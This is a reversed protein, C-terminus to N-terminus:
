NINEIIELMKASYQYAEKYRRRMKLVRTLLSVGAKILIYDKEEIASDVFKMSAQMYADSKDDELGMEVLEIFSKVLPSLLDLEAKKFNLIEAYAEDDRFLKYLSYIRNLYYIETRLRCLGVNNLAAEYEGIINHYIAKNLHIYYYLEFDGKQQAYTISQAFSTLFDDFRYLYIYARQKVAKVHNSRRFSSHEEFLKQSHNMNDLVKNYQTYDSLFIVGKLYYLMAKYHTNNMSSLLDNIFSLAESDRNKKQLYIAKMMHFWERREVGYFPEMIACAEYYYDIKDWQYQTYVGVMFMILHFELFRSSRLYFAENEVLPKALEKAKAYDYYLMTPFIEQYISDFQSELKADTLFKIDLTDLLKQLTAKKSHVSGYETRHISTHPLGTMKSFDRLTIDKQRRVLYVRRGVTIYNPYGSM